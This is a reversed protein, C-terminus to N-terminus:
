DAGFADKFKQWDDKDVEEWIDKEKGFFADNVAQEVSYPCHEPPEGEVINDVLLRAGVRCFEYFNKRWHEEGFDFEDTEVQKKVWEQRCLECIEKKLM